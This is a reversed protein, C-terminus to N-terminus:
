KDVTIYNLSENFALETNEKGDIYIIVVNRSRGIL